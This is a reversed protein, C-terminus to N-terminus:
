SNSYAKQRSRGCSTKQLNSQHARTQPDINPRLNKCAKQLFIYM